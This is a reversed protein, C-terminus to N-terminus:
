FNVLQYAFQQKFRIPGANSVGGSFQIGTNGAKIMIGSEFIGKASLGAGIGVGFDGTEFDVSVEAQIIEFSVSITVTAGNINVCIMAFCFDVDANKQKYYEDWDFDNWAASADECVGSVVDAWDNITSDTDYYWSSIYDEGTKIFAYLADEALSRDLAQPNRFFIAFSNLKFSMMADRLKEEAMQAISIETEAAQSLIVKDRECEQQMCQIQCGVDDGCAGMCSSCLESSERIRNSFNQDNNYSEKGEKAVADLVVSDFAAKCIYISDTIMTISNPPNYPDINIQGTPDDAGAPDPLDAKLQAIEPSDPSLLKAQELLRAALHKRGAKLYLRALVIKFQANDPQLETALGQEYIARELSNLAKYSFALNAHIVADQPELDRAMLLMARAEGYRGLLNLCFGIKSYIGASPQIELALLYAYMATSISRKMIAELGIAMLTDIPGLLEIKNANTKKLSAKVHSDIEDKLADSLKAGFEARLADAMYDIETANFAPELFVGSPLTNYDPVSSDGNNKDSSVPDKACFFVLLSVSIAVITIKSM